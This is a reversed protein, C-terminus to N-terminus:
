RVVYMDCEYSVNCQRKTEEQRGCVGEVCLDRRGGSVHHHHLITDSRQDRRRRITLNTNHIHQELVPCVNFSYSRYTHPSNNRSHLIINPNCIIIIQTHIQTRTKEHMRTHANHEHMRTNEFSTHTHTCVSVCVCVDACLSLYM